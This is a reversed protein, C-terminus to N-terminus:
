NVFKTAKKKRLGLVRGAFRLQGFQASEHRGVTRAASIVFREIAVDAPRVCGISARTQNEALGRRVCKGDAFVSRLKLQTKVLTIRHSKKKILAVIAAPQEDIM